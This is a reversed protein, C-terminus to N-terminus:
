SAPERDNYVRAGLMLLGWAIEPISVKKAQNTDVSGAAPRYRGAVARAKM